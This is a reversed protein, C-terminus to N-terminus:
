RRVHVLIKIKTEGIQVIDGDRIKVASIYRENLRTGNSSALDKITMKDKNHIEIQCHRVSVVPDSLSIDAKPGRGVLTSRFLLKYKKAKDPGEVVELVVYLNEPIRPNTLTKRILTSESPPLRTDESEEDVPGTQFTGYRDEVVSILAKTDGFQLEDLNVVPSSDILKGNVKTGNTSKNDTLFLKGGACELVAHRGSVTPDNLKLDADKRGIVTQASVVEFKLGKDPGEIVELTIFLGAPVDGAQGQDRLSGSHTTERDSMIVREARWEEPRFDTGTRPVGPAM